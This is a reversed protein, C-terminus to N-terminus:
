SPAGTVCSRHGSLRTPTGRLGDLSRSSHHRARAVQLWNSTMESSPRFTALPNRCAVVLSSWDRDDGSRTETLSFLHTESDLQGLAGGRSREVAGRSSEGRSARLSRLQCELQNPWTKTYDPPQRWSSEGVASTSLRLRETLWVSVRVAVRSCSLSQAQWARM